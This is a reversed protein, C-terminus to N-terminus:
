VLARRVGGRPPLFRFKFTCSILSPPPASDFGEESVGPRRLPPPTLPLRVELRQRAGSVRRCGDATALHTWKMRWVSVTIHKNEGVLEFSLSCVALASIFHFCTIMHDNTQSGQSPFTFVAQGDQWYCQPGNLVAGLAWSNQEVRCHPLRCRSSHFASVRHTM